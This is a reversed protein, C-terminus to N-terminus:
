GSVAEWSVTGSDCAGTVAGSADTETVNIRVTGSARARAVRGTVDYAVKGEGGSDPAYTENFADGFRGSGLPFGSFSENANIYLDEPKCTSSEWGFLLNAVSKRRADLRLVIPHDQSTSGAFVRGPSRTASWRVSGTRCTAVTTDATADGITITANLAGSARKKTLKGSYTAVLTGVQEGMDFGGLQTGSFRGKGNRSTALEHFGPQFGPAAKVADLPVAVPFSRGDDCRASWSVIASRLVKAKKDAKIVIAAGASTSGGYVADAASAPAPAIAAAAIAIGVARM